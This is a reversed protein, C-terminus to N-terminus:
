ILPVQLHHSVFEDLFCVLCSSWGVFFALGTSQWGGTNEFTNFVEYASRHPSFYLLPVLVGFFGLVYVVLMFSEIQPLVRSLITNVFLSMAIVAYFLLTGHWRQPAYDPHNLTVLGELLSGAVYCASAVLVQWM